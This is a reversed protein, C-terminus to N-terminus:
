PRLFRFRDAARPRRYPMAGTTLGRATVFLVIGWWHNSLPALALKVKGVVQTWLHLTNCTDQWDAYALAPWSSEDPPNMPSVGRGLNLHERRGRREFLQHAILAPKARRKFLHPDYEDDVLAVRQWAHNQMDLVLAEIENGRGRRGHARAARLEVRGTGARLDIM